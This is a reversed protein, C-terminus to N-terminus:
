EPRLSAPSIRRAALVTALTLIILLKALESPQFRFFGVDIWRQAGHSRAGIAAVAVLLVLNVAYIPYGASQVLRADIATFVVLLVIGIAAFVAQHGPFSSFFPADAASNALTASFVMVVGYVTLLLATALLVYDFHRWISWRKEIM